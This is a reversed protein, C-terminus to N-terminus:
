IWAVREGLDFFSAFIGEDRPCGLVQSLGKDAHERSISARYCSKGITQTLDAGKQPGAESKGVDRCQLKRSKQVRVRGASILGRNEFVIRHEGSLDRLVISHERWDGV